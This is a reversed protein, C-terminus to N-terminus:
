GIMAGMDSWYTTSRHATPLDKAKIGMAFCMAVGFYAGFAHTVLSGGADSVQLTYHRLQVM